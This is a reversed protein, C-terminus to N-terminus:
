LAHGQVLSAFVLSYQLVNINNYSGSIGFLAHWIRMNYKDYTPLYWLVASKPLVKAYDKDLLHIIRWGRIMCDINGLM